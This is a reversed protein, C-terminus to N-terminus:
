PAYGCVTPTLEISAPQLFWCGTWAVMVVLWAPVRLIRIPRGSWAGHLAIAAGVLALAFHAVAFWPQAAYCRGDWPQSQGVTLAVAGALALWLIAPLCVLM